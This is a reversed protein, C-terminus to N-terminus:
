AYATDGAAGVYVNAVGVLGNHRYLGLVRTYRSGEFEDLRKWEGPLDPSVFLEAKASSNLAYTFAPLGAEESIVGPLTVPHRWTGKIDLVEDNPQGPRLTGYAALKQSPRDLIFDLIDELVPLTIKSVDRNRRARKVDPGFRTKEGHRLNNRVVLVARSLRRLLSASGARTHHWRTWDAKFEDHAVSADARVDEPIDEYRQQSMGPTGHDLIQPAFTAFAEVSSMALLADRNAPQITKLLETFRKSETSRENPPRWSEDRPPITFLTTWLQNLADFYDGCADQTEWGPRPRRAYNANDLAVQVNNALAEDQWWAPM